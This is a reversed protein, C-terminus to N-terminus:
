SLARLEGLSGAQDRQGKATRPATARGWQWHGPPRTAKDRGLQGRVGHREGQPAAAPGNQRWPSGEQEAEGGGAPARPLQEHKGPAQVM